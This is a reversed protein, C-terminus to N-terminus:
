PAPVLAGLIGEGVNDGCRPTNPTMIAIFGRKIACDDVFAGWAHGARDFHVDLFDLNAMCAGEASCGGIFLPETPRNVTATAIVPDPGFVDDIQAIYGNWTVGEYRGNECQSLLLNCFAFYPANGPANTSGLYVLAIKGATSVAVRPLAAEIVGPPSVKIPPSWTAGRNRSYAVYPQHDAATWTYYVAGAGDVAARTAQASSGNNAVVVTTWSFGEDHSIAIQPQGGHRKPVYLTGDPTVVPNGAWPGFNDDEGTVPFPTRGTPLFTLGGNISKSCIPTSAPPSSGLTTGTCYYVLDPYGITRSHVPPGTGISEGDFGYGGLPTTIWHNGADNSFSLSSGSALGEGLYNLSFIRGTREDGHLYPDLSTVHGLPSVDEWHVGDGSRVVIPYPPVGGPIRDRLVWGQYLIRGDRTFAFSPEMARAGTDYRCPMLAPAAAPAGSAHFAVAPRAPDCQSAAFVGLAPTGVAILCAVITTIAGLTLVTTSRSGSM